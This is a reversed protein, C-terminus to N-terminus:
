ADEERLTYGVGRVTRLIRRTGPPEIKQRLLRVFADLTNAEVEAGFGWVTDLIIERPVVAGARRMLLELLSYETRSLPTAQGGRWVERAGTDLELDGVKLRVPQAIPGRRSVARVRAFFVDFSFPKALYDDAGSDLGLVVDRTQDRATLMLIPTQRRDRRLRRAVEIGDLRPLMLDLVILDFSYALAVQLGTEGDMAEAVAHGEEQLGQLLLERMRPDDEIVLVRM